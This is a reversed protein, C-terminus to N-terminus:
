LPSFSLTFPGTSFILVICSCFVFFFFEIYLCNDLFCYDVSMYENYINLFLCWFLCAFLVSFYLIILFTTNCVHTDHFIYDAKWKFISNSIILHVFESINVLLSYYLISVLISMYITM